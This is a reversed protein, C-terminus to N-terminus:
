EDIKNFPKLSQLTPNWCVLSIAGKDYYAMTRHRYFTGLNIYTGFDFQKQRPIHDHGCIIIDIDKQSITQKAWQDLKQVKNTNTGRDILRTFRSFYKMIKLGTQPPFITQFLQVFSNSRLLQHMPPRTLKLKEDTVGDGHLVMINHHQFPLIKHESEMKFGRDPLHGRTWNDHNGTIYLTSGMAQNFTDFRDLLKKGLKPVTDPYEMWYDFLDGLIAISIDKRQCYNLLQILEAEIRTNEEESFGGLHVDSIFLM